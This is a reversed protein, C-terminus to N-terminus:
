PGARAPPLGSQAAQQRVVQELEKCLRARSAAWAEDVIAGVKALVKLMNGTSGPAHGDGSSTWSVSGSEGTLAARQAALRDRQAQRSRRKREREDRRYDSLQARRRKRALKRNRKKRCDKGCVKQAGKATPAAPVTQRCETCRITLAMLQITVAGAM